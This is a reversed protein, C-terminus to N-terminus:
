TGARGMKVRVQEELKKIRKLVASKSLGVAEGIQELTMNDIYRYTYIKYTTEDQEDLIAQVIINAEVQDYGNDMVGIEWVEKGQEGKEKFWKISGNTAMDYIEIFARRDRKKKNIVMNMVARPFYTKPYHVHLQGEKTLELIKTFVNQATDEADEVKRLMALCRSYVWSYYKRYFIGMNTDDITISLQPPQNNVPFPFIKPSQSPQTGDKIGMAVFSPWFQGKKCRRPNLKLRKSIDRQSM